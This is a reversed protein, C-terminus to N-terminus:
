TVGNSLWVTGQFHLHRDAPQREGAAATADAENGPRAARGAHVARQLDQAVVLRRRPRRVLGGHKPSDEAATAPETTAAQSHITTPHYHYLLLYWIFSEQEGNYINGM